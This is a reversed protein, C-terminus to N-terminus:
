SKCVGLFAMIEDETVGCQRLTSKCWEDSLSANKRVYVTHGSDGRRWRTTNETEGRYTYGLSKLKNTFQERKPM